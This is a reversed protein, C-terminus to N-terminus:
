ETGEGVIEKASAAAAKNVSGTDDGKGKASNSLLQTVKISLIEAMMPGVGDYERIRQLVKAPTLGYSQALAEVHAALDDNTVQLNEQKAIKQSLISWRVKREAEKAAEPRYKEMQANMADGAKVGARLLHSRQQEVLANTEADVMNQPIDFSVKGLLTNVIEDEEKQRADVIADRMLRTRLVQRLQELNGVGISEAFADNMEPMTGHEVSKVTVEVDAERGRLEPNPHEQPLTVRVLVFDGKKAGKFKEVLNPCPLGFLIEGDVRLRQNEMTMIEQGDVKTEFDVGLIDGVEAGEGEPAPEYTAFNKRLRDLEEEVEADSVSPERKALDLGKYEPLEFEPVVNFEFGTSFPQGPVPAALGNADSTIEGLLQIDEKKVIEPVNTEALQQRVGSAAEKAYRKELSRRPAKGKRFGKLKVYNNIEEYSKDFAKDIDEASFKLLLKKRCVGADTLEYEM